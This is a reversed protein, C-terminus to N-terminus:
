RSNPQTNARHIRRALEKYELVNSLGGIPSRYNNAKGYVALTPYGDVENVGLANAIANTRETSLGVKPDRSNSQIVQAYIANIPPKSRDHARGDLYQLTNRDLGKCPGCWDASIDVVLPVGLKKAQEFLKRAEEVSRVEKHMPCKLQDSEPKTQQEQRRLAEALARDSAGTTSSGPEYKIIPPREQTPPQAATNPRSDSAVVPKTAPAEAPKTAEAPKPTEVLKPPEVKPKEQRVRNTRAIIDDLNNLIDIDTPTNSGTTRRTTEKDGAIERAKDKDNYAVIVPAGDKDISALATASGQREFARPINQRGSLVQSTEKVAGSVDDNNASGTDRFQPPEPHKRSAQSNASDTM